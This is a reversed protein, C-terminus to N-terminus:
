LFRDIQAIRLRGGIQGFLLYQTGIYLGLIRSIYSPFFRSIKMFDACYVLWTIPLYEQWGALSFTFCCFLLPIGFVEDSSGNYADVALLMVIQRAM